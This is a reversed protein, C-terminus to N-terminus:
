HKHSVLPWKAFKYGTKRIAKLSCQKLTASILVFACAKGFQKQGEVDINSFFVNTTNASILAEWM